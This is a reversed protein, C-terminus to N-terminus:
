RAPRGERIRRRHRAQGADIVRAVHARVEVTLNKRKMAPHLYGVAASCRKGDRISYQSRGFGEGSSRTTTTPSRCAPWARPRSGPPSCRTRPRAGNCASTATPAAISARATRGARSASSTPCCTRSLVLRARGEAGLPRLRGSRRPHLGDRQDLVLRGAGQRADGRRPPRQPQSRARVSLGLRADQIRAAQRARDPHPDASQLRPRRSRAAARPHAPGGVPPQGARLRRLRRRRHHLRLHRDAM